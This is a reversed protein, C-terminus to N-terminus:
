NGILLLFQPGSSVSLGGFTVCTLSPKPGLVTVSTNNGQVGLKGPCFALRSRRLSPYKRQAM